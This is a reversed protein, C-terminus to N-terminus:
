SVAFRKKTSIRVRRLCLPLAQTTRGSPNRNESHTAVLILSFSRESHLRWVITFNGLPTNLGYVLIEVLRRKKVL